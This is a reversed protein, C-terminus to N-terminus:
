NGRSRVTGRDGRVVLTMMWVRVEDLTHECITELYGSFGQEGWIDQGERQWPCSPKGWQAGLDGLTERLRAPPQASHAPSAMATGGPPPAQTDHPSAM